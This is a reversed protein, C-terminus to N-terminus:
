HAHRTGTGCLDNAMMRADKPRMGGEKNLLPRPPEKQTRSVKPSQSLPKSTSQRDGPAPVDSLGIRQTNERGQFPVSCCGLAVGQSRHGSEARARFPRCLM